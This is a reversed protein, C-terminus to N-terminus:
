WWRGWCVPEDETRQEISATQGWRKFLCSVHACTAVDKRGIGGGAGYLRWVGCDVVDRHPHMCRASQSRADLIVVRSGAGGSGREVRGGRGAAGARGVM